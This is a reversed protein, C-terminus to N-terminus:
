LKTELAAFNNWFPTLDIERGKNRYVWKENEFDPHVFVNIINANGKKTVLTGATVWARIAMSPIVLFNKARGMFKRRPLTYLVFVYVIGQGYLLRDKKLDFWFYSGKQFLSCKVQIQYCRENKVAVFDIGKDKIPLYVAFGEEKELHNIVELEGLHGIGSM